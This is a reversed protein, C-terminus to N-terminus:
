LDNYGGLKPITHVCAISLSGDLLSLCHLSFTSRVPALPIHLLSLGSNKGSRPDNLSHGQHLGGRKGRGRSARPATSLLSYQSMQYM